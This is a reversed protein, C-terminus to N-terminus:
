IIRLGQLARPHAIDWFLHLSHPIEEEVVEVLSDTTSGGMQDLIQGPRDTWNINSHLLNLYIAILWCFLYLYSVDFLHNTWCKFSTVRGEDMFHRLHGSIRGETESCCDDDDSDDKRPWIIHQLLVQMSFFFHMHFVKIPSCVTFSASWTHVM